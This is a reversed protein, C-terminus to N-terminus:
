ACLLDFLDVPWIHTQPSILAQRSIPAPHLHSCFRCDMMQTFKWSKSMLSPAVRRGRRWFFSIRSGHLEIMSLCLTLRGTVLRGTREVARQQLRGLDEQLRGGDRLQGTARCDELLGGIGRVTRTTSLLFVNGMTAAGAM